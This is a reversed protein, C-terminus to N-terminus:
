NGGSVLPLDKVVKFVVLFRDEGDKYASKRHQPSQLGETKREEGVKTLFLRKGNYGDGDKKFLFSAHPNSQLIATSLRDLMTMSMTVNETLHPRSYIASDM